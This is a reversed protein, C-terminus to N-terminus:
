GVVLERTLERVSAAGCLVMARELETQLIELVHRVGAEGDM